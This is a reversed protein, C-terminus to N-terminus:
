PRNIKSEISIELSLIQNQYNEQENLKALIVQITNKSKVLAKIKLSFIIQYSFIDIFLLVCQSRWQLQAHQTSISATRLTDTLTVLYTTVELAAHRYTYRPVNHEWNRTVGTSRKRWSKEVVPVFRQGSIDLMTDKGFPCFVYIVVSPAM